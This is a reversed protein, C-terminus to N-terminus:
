RRIRGKKIKKEWEANRTGCHEGDEKEIGVENKGCDKMTVKRENTLSIRQSRDRRKELSATHSSFKKHKNRYDAKGADTKDM